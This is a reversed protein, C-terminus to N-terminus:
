GKKKGGIQFNGMKKLLGWVDTQGTIKPMQPKVFKPKVYNNVAEIKDCLEPQPIKTGLAIQPLGKKKALNNHLVILDDNKWKM